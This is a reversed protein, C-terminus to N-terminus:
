DIRRPVDDATRIGEVRPLEEGPHGPDVLRSGNGDPSLPEIFDVTERVAFDEFADGSREDGFSPLVVPSFLPERHLGHLDYEQPVSLQLGIGQRKVAVPQELIDEVAHEAMSVVSGLRQEVDTQRTVPDNPAVGGRLGLQLSQLFVDLPLEAALDSDFLTRHFELREIHRSNELEMRKDSRALVGNDLQVNRFHVGSRDGLVCGVADEVKHADDTPGDAHGDAVIPNLRRSRKGDAVPSLIEDPGSSHM